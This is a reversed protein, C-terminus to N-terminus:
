RVGKVYTMARGKKKGCDLCEKIQKITIHASIEPEQADKWFSWRHWIICKSKTEM